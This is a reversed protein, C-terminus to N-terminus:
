QPGRFSEGRVGAGMPSQNQGSVIPVHPLDDGADAGGLVGGGHGGNPGDSVGVTERQEAAGYGAEQKKTIGRGGTNLRLRDATILEEGRPPIWKSSKWPKVELLFMTDIEELSRGSTEPLCFYVFFLAFLNCGAFVYGYAFNIDGTIFPTFFAILFNFLWNSAACLAMAQSRYRSPYIEATVVWAQCGWTCAFAAIFLCSFIILVYGITQNNTGDANQLAFQGLSAFILFCMFMWAAGAMLCKRRGFKEVFYLGPFTCGVNVAGLIIQTVYSNSLGVSAFVTTGYYFFYNAGTLQQLAQVTMGLLTRYLMRPGTFVEYWPHSGGELELQLKEQMEVVQEQVVRHRESVGHFKAVSTTARDIDGHRYQHRPTEPFFLIGTGLVIAWLFGIGMPIRWSATNQISETGFNILNAILIGITIFLQYCCVIAGRVHRPSSEGQYAPVVVSMGGIALGAIIRGIMLQYWRPGLSGIQVAVGACFVVSWICISYKRGITKNNAVPGAILAGILTGISLMGVILGSRVNDFGLPNRENAFNRLFDDMELFGSIQGTDYGFCLGGFSVLVAMFFTRVTLFPMKSDDNFPGKEAEVDAVDGNGMFSPRRSGGRRVTPPKKQFM